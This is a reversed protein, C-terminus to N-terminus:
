ISEEAVVEREFEEVESVVFTLHHNTDIAIWQTPSGLVAQRSCLLIQSDGWSFRPGLFQTSGSLRASLDHMQKQDGDNFFAHGRVVYIQGKVTHRIKGNMYKSPQETTTPGRVGYDGSTITIDPLNLRLTQWALMEKRLVFGDSDRSSVALDITNPLSCGAVIYHDFGFDRLQRIINESTEVIREISMANISVDAFDLMISCKLPDVELRKVIEVITAQFVEPEAADEFASSDLRMCYRGDARPPISGLGMQYDPNSWRDYGIVPIVSVGAAELGAVMYAIVHDGNEVRADPSWQYGDVMAVRDKWAEGVRQFVRSLYTMLPASSTRFYKRQSIAETVRGVEFLPTIKPAIRKDLNALADCEGKNAKLIPVHITKM